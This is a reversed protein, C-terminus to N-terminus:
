ALLGGSSFPIMSTAPLLSCCVSGGEYIEGSFPPPIKCAAHPLRNDSSGPLWIVRQCFDPGLSRTLSCTIFILEAVRSDSYGISFFHFFIYDPQITKNIHFTWSFKCRQKIMHINELPPLSARLRAGLQFTRHCHWLLPPDIKLWHMHSWLSKPFRLSLFLHLPPHTTPPEYSPPWHPNM